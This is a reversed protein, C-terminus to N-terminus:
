ASRAVPMADEELAMEAPPSPKDKSRVGDLHRGKQRKARTIKRRAARLESSVKFRESVIAKATDASLVTGDLDRVEYPRGERLVAALRSALATAVACLAKTHHSGRNLQRLYIDALQPDQKRAADAALFLATRLLRDGSKTLRPRTEAEGSQNTGPIMGIFSRVAAANHFRAADGLRGAVTTATREGFGPMSMFLGQPDIDALLGVARADLERIEAELVKIIRTECALDEAIEDFDCGELGDWLEIASRAVALIQEAKAERWAGRSHKILLAAIRAKGLRLMARPSGYRGLLAMAAKGLEEGLAENMGPMAHHLTSRVRQRHQALESVLRARRRVIRKLVGRSGAPLQADHLGEPHLLPLRALLQADIRDNKVHKTYYRRLDSSQEPPVLHVRAGKMRFFATPAIWMSSTPEMVVLLQDEENLGDSAADWLAELENRRIHFGREALVEGTADAICARSEATIALDIGIVRRM